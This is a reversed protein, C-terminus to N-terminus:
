FISIRFALADQEIDYPCEVVRITPGDVPEGSNEALFPQLTNESLVDIPQNLAASKLLIMGECAKAKIGPHFKVSYQSRSRLQSLRLLDIKQGQTVVRALERAMDPITVMSNPM